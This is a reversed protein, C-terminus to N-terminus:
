APLLRGHELRLLRAGAVALRPDHTAILLAKGGRALSALEAVLQEARADDLHATPEDLILVAPDLLLARALAIRQREGGSLKRAVVSALQAVGFRDMLADAREGLDRGEPVSPLLVNQRATMGEILQVDQFVFGVCRRRVESRHADRLRSIPEDGLRVEGSTPLLMGGAVALLTTKGSGSPGRVLAIEGPELTLCVGDLVVRRADGDIVRKTVDALALASM